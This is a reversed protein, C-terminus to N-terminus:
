PTPVRARLEEDFNQVVVISASGAGPSADLDSRIMLLRGDAAVDYSNVNGGTAMFFSESFAATATDFRFDPGTTVAAVYTTTGQRFFIEAGDASWRPERGGNRSVRFSVGDPYAKVWIEAMGTRTSAYALWRGDPSLAPDFEPDSTAAVDRRQGNEGLSFARIDGNGADSTFGLLTDNEYWDVPVSNSSEPLMAGLDRVSGDAPLIHIGM